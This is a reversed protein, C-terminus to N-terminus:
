LGAALIGCAFIPAAALVSDIRDLLGGHGPLINGSDKINQSRKLLSEFLDGVVAAIIAPFAIRLWDWHTIASPEGWATQVVFALIFAGVIGAFMGEVTKNPSITPALKHKGYRRGGFYAVIDTFWVLLLMFLLWNPNRSELIVLANWCPVLTIVGAIGILWNPIKPLAAQYRVIFLYILVAFWWIAALAIILAPPVFLLCIMLVAAILLVYSIRLSIKNWGLLAAWEWAALLVLLFAVGAFAAAPLYYIGVLVLAILVIATLIRYKLM